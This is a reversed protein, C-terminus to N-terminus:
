VGGTVEDLLLLLFTKSLFLKMVEDVAQKLFADDEVVPLYIIRTKHECRTLAVDALFVHLNLFSLTFLQPAVIRVLFM